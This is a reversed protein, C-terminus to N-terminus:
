FSATLLSIGMYAVSAIMLMALALCIIRVIKKQKKNM